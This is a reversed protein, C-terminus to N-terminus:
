REDRRRHEGARRILTLLGIVFAILGPAVVLFFAPRGEALIGGCLAIMGGYFLLGYGKVKRESDSSIQQRARTDMLPESSRHHLRVQM